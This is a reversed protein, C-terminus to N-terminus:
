SLSRLGLRRHTNCLRVKFGPILHMKGHQTIAMVHEPVAVAARFVRCMCSSPLGVALAVCCM